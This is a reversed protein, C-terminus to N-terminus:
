STSSGLVCAACDCDVRQTDLRTNVLLYHWDVVVFAGFWLTCTAAQLCNFKSFCCSPQRQWEQSWAVDLGLALCFYLQMGVVSFWRLIAAEIGLGQLCCAQMCRGFSTSCPTCEQLCEQLCVSLQQCLHETKRFETSDNGPMLAALQGSRGRVSHHCASKCRTWGPWVVKSSFLEQQWVPWVAVLLLKMNM